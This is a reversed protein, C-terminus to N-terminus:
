SFRFKPQPTDNALRTIAENVRKEFDNDMTELLFDSTLTCITNIKNFSLGSSPAAIKGHAFIHRINKVICTVNIEQGNKGNKFDELQQRLNPVSPSNGGLM